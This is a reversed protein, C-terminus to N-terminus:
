NSPTLLTENTNQGAHTLDYRWTSVPVPTATQASLGSACTFLVLLFVPRVYFKNFFAELASLSVFRAVFGPFRASMALSGTIIFNVKRGRPPLDRVDTPFCEHIFARDVSNSQDWYSRRKPRNWRLSNRTAITLKGYINGACTSTSGKTISM